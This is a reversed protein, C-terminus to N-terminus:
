HKIAKAGDMDINGKFYAGEAISISPTCINGFVSASERIVVSRTSYIDGEVRGEIEITQARITAQVVGGACIVLSDATHNISGEVRGEIRLNEGAELDGRIVVTAGILSSNRNRLENVPLPERIPSPLPEAPREPAVDPASQQAGVVADGPAKPAPSLGPEAFDASMPDM